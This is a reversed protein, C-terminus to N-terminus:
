KLVFKIPVTYRRVQGAPWRWRRQVHDRAAGDLVVHGSSSAVTVSSPVGSAEVTVMLRLSGQLGASRASAPYSPSPFTGGGGGTFLQAEGGSGGGGRQSGSQGSTRRESTSPKVEEQKAAPSPAIEKALIEVVQKPPTLEVMEPPTIPDIVEPVPPLDIELLLQEPEPSRPEIAKDPSAPPANFEEVMVEDGSSVRAIELKAEPVLPSVAGQIGIGLFLIGIGATWASALHANNDKPALIMPLPFRLLSELVIWIVFSERGACVQRPGVNWEAEEWM